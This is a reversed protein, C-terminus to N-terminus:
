RMHYLQTYIMCQVSYVTYYYIAGIHPGTHETEQIYTSCYPIHARYSMHVHSITQYLRGGHSAWHAQDRSYIGCHPTYPLVLVGIGKFIHWLTTGQIYAVTHRIHCCTMSSALWFDAMTDAGTEPSYSVCYTKSNITVLTKTSHQRNYHVFHEQNPKFFNTTESSLICIYKLLSIEYVVHYPM